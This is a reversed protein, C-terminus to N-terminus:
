FRMVTDPRPLLCNDRNTRQLQRVKNVGHAGNTPWVLKTKVSLRYCESLTISITNARSKRCPNGNNSLLQRKDCEVKEKGERSRRRDKGYRRYEDDPTAFLCLSSLIWLFFGMQLFFIFYLVLKLQTKYSRIAAYGNSNAVGYGSSINSKGM